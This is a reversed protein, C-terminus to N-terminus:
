IGEEEGSVGSAKKGGHMRAEKFVRVALAFVLVTVAAHLGINVWHYGRPDLGNWQYNLRFTATTIPRFSKHSSNSSLRQGWFDHILLNSWPSTAPM